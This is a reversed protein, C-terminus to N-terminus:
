LFSFSFFFQQIILEFVEIHPFRQLNASVVPPEGYAAIEISNVRQRYVELGM